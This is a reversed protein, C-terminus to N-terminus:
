DEPQWFDATTASPRKEHLTQKKKRAAEAQTVLHKLVELTTVDLDQPNNGILKHAANHLLHDQIHGVLKSSKEITLTSEPTREQPNEQSVTAQDTPINSMSAFLSEATAQNLKQVPDAWAVVVKRSKDYTPQRGHSVRFNDIWLMDGKEWRSYVMNQHIARRIEAMEQVSIETGDGFTAHLGMSRRLLGYQIFCFLSVFLWHFLLRIDRCRQFAHWLEAPFTTWHFVQTHNFWVLEKTVPHLQFAPSETVSVFIDKNPGTWQVPLGEAACLIEVQKKDDTGFMEPWGLMASVDYTFYSGRKKHTRTYRIGKDLFKQKLYPPLDQAVRAFDCLSTEGGATASPQLCGFYLQAPPAELFSMELHQAIPYNSPVEAASFVKQAGTMLKRPSTGRYTDNLNPQYGQLAMEMDHATKIAFGRILLAGHELMMQDLWARNTRSWEVFFQLSDNWRPTIVLPLCSFANTEDDNAAADDNRQLKSINVADLGM